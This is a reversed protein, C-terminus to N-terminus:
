TNEDHIIKTLTYVRVLIDFTNKVSEEKEPQLKVQKM